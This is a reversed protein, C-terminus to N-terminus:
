IPQGATAPHHKPVIPKVPQFPQPDTAPDRRNGPPAAQHQRHRAIHPQCPPQASVQDMAWRRIGTAQRM